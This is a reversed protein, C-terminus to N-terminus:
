CKKTSPVCVEYPRFTFIEWTNEYYWFKVNKKINPQSFVIVMLFILLMIPNNPGAMVTTKAPNAPHLASHAIMKNVAETPNLAKPTGPALDLYVHVHNCQYM